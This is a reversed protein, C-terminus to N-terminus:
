REGCLITISREDTIGASTMITNTARYVHGVVGGSLTVTATESDNTDSDVTLGGDEEPEITWASSSLTTGDLYGADWNITYDVSAQPDKFYIM